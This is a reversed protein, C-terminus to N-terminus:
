FYNLIIEKVIHEPQDTVESIQRLNKGKLSLELIYNADEQRMNEPKLKLESTFYTETM